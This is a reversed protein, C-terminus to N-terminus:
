CQSAPASRALGGFADLLRERWTFIPDSDEILDAPSSCRAWMFMGFVCYDAYTPADGAIFDQGKLAQRLPALAQRFSNILGPRDAAVQELAQGFRKERSSRFYDQDKLDLRVHIDVVIIRAIAPLLATDAWGNVFRALQLLGRGDFLSSSGAFREELHLAIRWSDNVVVEGDVLVPVAGQGSFAIAEKETFRWPLFKAELRKHALAMRLKWCHPSIRLNPDAAALEYVTLGATKM